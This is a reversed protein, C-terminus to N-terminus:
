WRATTLSQDFTSPTETAPDEAALPVLSWDDFYIVDGNSVAVGKVRVTTDGDVKFTSSRETWSTDTITDSQYYVTSTTTGVIEFYFSDGSTAKGWGNFTYYEGDVVTIDQYLHGTDATATIEGCQAGSRYETTNYSLTASISSWLSSLEFGGNEIMNQVICMSDFIGKAGSVDANLKVALNGTSTTRDAFTLREFSSGSIAKTVTATMVGSFTYFANATTEQGIMSFFYDEDTSVAINQLLDANTNGELQLAQVGIMSDTIKFYAAPDNETTWAGTGCWEMEGDAVLNVSVAAGNATTYQAYNTMTSVSFVGSSPASNIIVTEFYPTLSSSTAPKYILIRLSGGYALRLSNLVSADSTSLTFTTSTADASLKAHWKAPHILVKM